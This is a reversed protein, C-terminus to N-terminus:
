RAFALRLFHDITSLTPRGSGPAAERCRATTRKTALPATPAVIDRDHGIGPVAYYMAHCDTLGFIENFSECAGPLMHADMSEDLM